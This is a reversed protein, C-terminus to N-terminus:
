GGKLLVGIGGTLVILFVGPVRLFVLASLCLASLAIVYTDVFAAMALMVSAGALAGIAASSIGKAFSIMHPHQSNKHYYPAITIVLIYCPLLTAITATIAGALGAILYGIFAVSILLPGPTVMAVAVADLFQHETLWHFDYVVGQQLYPLIALGGGFVITGAKIFFWAIQGLSESTAQGNEGNFLWVFMPLSSIAITTERNLFTRIGLVLLGSLLFALLIGTHLWMILAANVLAVFWLLPDHRLTQRCLYFANQAIIAIVAARVGYSAGQLWPIGAFRLYCDAAVIVMLFAPLTYAGGALTAGRVGGHLWGLFMIVQTTLPGPTFQALSLGVNFDRNSVWHRTDVLDKRIYALPALPGGFVTAGLKLFYFILQRLTFEEKEVKM